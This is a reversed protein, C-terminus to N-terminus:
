AWRHEWGGAAPLPRGALSRETPDATCTGIREAPRHGAFAAAVAAEDPATFVLVYDEGGTLAEDLTAGEGVPVRDLAVGVGSSAALHGLDAVLGDSVDIM